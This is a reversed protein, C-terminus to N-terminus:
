FDKNINLFKGNKQEYKKFEDIINRFTKGDGNVVYEGDKNKIAHFVDGNVVTTGDVGEPFLSKIKKERVQQVWISIWYMNM